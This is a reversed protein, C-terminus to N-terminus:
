QAVPNIAWKFPGAVIKFRNIEIGIISYYEIGVLMYYCELLWIM